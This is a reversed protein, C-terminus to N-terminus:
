FEVKTEEKQAAANNYRRIAGLEEKLLDRISVRIAESRNPYAGATILQDIGELYAIPVHVTILQMKKYVELHEQPIVRIHDYFSSPRLVPYYRSVYM